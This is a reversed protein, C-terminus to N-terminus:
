DGRSLLKSLGWDDRNLPKNTQTNGHRGALPIPISCLRICQTGDNALTWCKGWFGENCMLSKGKVVYKIPSSMSGVKTPKLYEGRGGIVVGVQVFM